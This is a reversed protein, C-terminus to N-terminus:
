AFAQQFFTVVKFFQCFIGSMETDVFDDTSTFLVEDNVETLVVEKVTANSVTPTSLEPMAYGRLVNKTIITELVVPQGIKVKKNPGRDSM